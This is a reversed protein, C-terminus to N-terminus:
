AGAEGDKDGDASANAESLLRGEQNVDASAM